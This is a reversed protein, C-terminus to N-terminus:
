TYMNTTPPTDISPSPNPPYGVPTFPEFDSIKEINLTMLYYPELILTYMNMTGNNEQM